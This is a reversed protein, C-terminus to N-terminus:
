TCCGGQYFVSDFRGETYPWVGLKKIHFLTARREKWNTLLDKWKTLNEYGQSYLEFSDDSFRVNIIHELDRDTVHHDKAYDDNVVVYAHPDDRMKRILTDDATEGTITAELKGSFRLENYIKKNSETGENLIHKAVLGDVIIKVPGFSESLVQDYCNSLVQVDPIELGKNNDGKRRGKFAVNSGDVYIRALSFQFQKNAPSYYGLLRGRPSLLFNEVDEETKFKSLEENRQEPQWYRYLYDIKGLDIFAETEEKELNEAVLYAIVGTLLSESLSSYKFQHKIEDLLRYAELTQINPARLEKADEYDSRDKFGASKSICLERMTRFGGKKAKEECKVFEGYSLHIDGELFRYASMIQVETGYGREELRRYITGTDDAWYASHDKEKLENIIYFSRNKISKKLTEIDAYGMPDLFCIVNGHTAAFLYNCKSTKVVKRESIFPDDTEIVYIDSIKNDKVFALFDQPYLSIEVKCEADAFFGGSTVEYYNM